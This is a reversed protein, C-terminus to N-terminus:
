VSWWDLERIKNMITEYMVPDFDRIAQMYGIFRQKAGHSGGVGVCNLTVGNVQVLLGANRADLAREIDGATLDINATGTPALLRIM